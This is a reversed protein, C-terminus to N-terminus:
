RYRVKQGFARAAPPPVGVQSNPVLKIAATEAAQITRWQNGGKSDNNTFYKVLDVEVSTQDVENKAAVNGPAIGNM